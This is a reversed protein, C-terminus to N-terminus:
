TVWCFKYYHMSTKKQWNLIRDVRLVHFPNVHNRTWTSNGINTIIGFKWSSFQFMLKKKNWRPPSYFPYFAWSYSYYGQYCSFSWQLLKNHVKWHSFPFNEYPCPWTQGVWCRQRLPTAQMPLCCLKPPLFIEHPLFGLPHSGHFLSM